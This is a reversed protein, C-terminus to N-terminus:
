DPDVDFREARNKKAGGGFRAQLGAQIGAGFLGLDEPQVPNEIYGDGSQQRKVTDGALLVTIPAHVFLDLNDGLRAEGGIRGGMTLMWTDQFRPADQPLTNNDVHDDVSKGLWYRVEVGFVPRFRSTPLLPVLVQPGLYTVSNGKQYPEPENLSQGETFNWYQVTYTGTLGGVSLGAELTPLIGYGAYLEWNLGQGSTANAWSWTEVVQLDAAAKAELYYYGGSSPGTAYGLAGRLILQGRRGATLDRWEQLNLGSNRYKVYENVRMGLREWPKSGESEMTEALDELKIKERTIEGEELIGVADAGGIEGSLSDLQAAAIARERDKEADANPDEMARIDAVLGAEGRVVAGVLEAMASAFEIDEGAAFEADFALVDESRNMDLIHVEVRNRNGRTEVAAAFTLRVAAAEGLVYACGVFQGAPCTTGYTYADMESVPPLEDIQKVLVGNDRIAAEIQSTLLAATTTSARTKAQFPAVLASQDRAQAPASLLVSLPMALAPVLARVRAPTSPNLMRRVM